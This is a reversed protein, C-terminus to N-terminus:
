FSLELAALLGFFVITNEHLVEDGDIIPIIGPPVSVDWWASTHAGAGFALRDTLRYSWKLRFETIPIAVDQDKRFTERIVFFPDEGFPGTFERTMRTLEASGILVSQGLHATLTNRGRTVDGALAVMPGMMLGYNSSADLRAGRVDQVGVVARYDNDFDGFRIGFLLHIASEPKEALTRLGYLDLTWAALDTDELVSYFLVQRPDFSSFSRDAIEFDIQHIPGQFNAAATRDAADQTTSFWFFDLGLGWQGRTYRFEGRYAPGSDTELNVATKDDTQVTSFLDFEHITLVHQDHGYATMVMPEFQLTWEGEGARAPGTALLAMALAAALALTATALDAALPRITSAGSRARVQQRAPTM